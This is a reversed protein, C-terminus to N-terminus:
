SIRRRSLDSSHSRRANGFSREFGANGRVKMYHASTEKFTTAWHGPPGNEDASDEFLVFFQIVMDVSFILDLLRNILFTPQLASSAAPLFAVEFPTVFATYILAIGTLLDWWPLFNSSRPDILHRRQKERETLRALVKRDCQQMFDTVTAITTEEEATPPAWPDEKSM